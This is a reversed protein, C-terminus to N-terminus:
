FERTLIMDKQTNSDTFLKIFHYNSSFDFDKTYQIM